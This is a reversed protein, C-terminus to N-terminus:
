HVHAAAGKAKKREEQVAAVIEPPAGALFDGSILELSRANWDKGEEDCMRRAVELATGITGWQESTCRFRLVQYEPSRGKGEGKGKKGKDPGKVSPLLALQDARKISDRAVRLKALKAGSVRIVNECRACKTTIGTASTSTPVQNAEGCQSCLVVTAVVRPGNAKDDVAEPDTPPAKKGKPKDKTDQSKAPAKAKPKAKAKKSPKTSNKAKSKSRTPKAKKSTAM